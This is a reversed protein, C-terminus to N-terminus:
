RPRSPRELRYLLGVPDGHESRIEEVQGGPLCNRLQLFGDSEDRPDWFFYQPLSSSGVQDCSFEELSIFTVDRPIKLQHLIGDRDPQGWEGWSLGGVYVIARDPLADMERAIIKGFPVNHDPLNWAYSVFYRHANLAVILVLAIGIAVRPIVRALCWPSSTVDALRRALGHFWLLGNAVLLYVFPIIAITRSASPVEGPPIFPWSGPVILILISGLVFALLRWRKALAFDLIGLVFFAGSVPDLHPLFPPNSRFIYDGVFHLMALSKMINIAFALAVSPLSPSETGFLKDGIYGSRFNDPQNIAIAVFPIAMVAMILCALVLPRLDRPARRRADLVLAALPLVFILPLIFTQPYIYLGLGSVLAGLFAHRRRSTRAFRMLFYGTLSVLLPISIQSNGLRSFVLLWSSVASVAGTSLGLRLGGIENGLLVAAAIGLLSVSVSALKYSLYSQGLVAIMPAILYHYMPGASLTYGLPWRFDLIYSVYGDVVSIDDYWEGPLGDLNYLRLFAATIGIAAIILLTSRNRVTTQM